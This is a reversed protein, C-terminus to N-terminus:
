RICPALTCFRGELLDYIVVLVARPTKIDMFPLGYDEFGLRIKWLQGCKLPQNKRLVQQQHVLRVVGPFRGKSHIHNVLNPEQDLRGSKRYQDKIIYVPRGSVTFPNQINFFVVTGQGFPSGVSRIRYHRCTVITGDALSLDIDFATRSEQSNDPHSGHTTDTHLKTNKGDSHVDSEDDGRRQVGNDDANDKHMHAQVDDSDKCDQAHMSTQSAVRRITLDRWSDPVDFSRYVFAYLLKIGSTSNLDLFGTSKIGAASTLVLSVGQQSALFLFGQVVVRDPRAQLLSATYSGAAAESANYQTGEGSSLVEVTAEVEAWEVGSATASSTLVM